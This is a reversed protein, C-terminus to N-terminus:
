QWKQVVLRVKGNPLREEKALQYGKSRLENMVKIKSYTQRVKNMAKLANESGCNQAVLEYTKTEANRMVGIREGEQTRVTFEVDVVEGLSTELRKIEERVCQLEAFAELLSTLAAEVLVVEVRHSTSL